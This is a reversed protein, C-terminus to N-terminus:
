GRGIMGAGAVVTAIDRAYRPALHARVVDLAVDGRTDGARQLVDLDIITQELAKGLQRHAALVKERDIPAPVDALTGLTKARERVADASAGTVLVVSTGTSAAYDTAPVLLVGNQYVDLYLGDVYTLTIANEDSGSFSTQGATATFQFRRRVGNSPSTGIYSM